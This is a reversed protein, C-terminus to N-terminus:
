NAPPPGRFVQTAYAADGKVVVGIGSATYGPFLINDRHEPSAMWDEVTQKAFANADFARGTGGAAFINEGITGKPGFRAIAMDIAPYKGSADQHSFPAGNAMDRSRTRAIATLDPDSLLRPTNPARMARVADIREAIAAEVALEARTPSASSAAFSAGAFALACLLLASLIPIRV